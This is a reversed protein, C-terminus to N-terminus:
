SEPCNTAILISPTLQSQEPFSTRPYPPRSNKPNPNQYTRPTPLPFTRPHSAMRAMSDLAKVKAPETTQDPDGDTDNTEASLLLSKYEKM